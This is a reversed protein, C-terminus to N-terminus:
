LKVLLAFNIRDETKRLDPTLGDVTSGPPGAGEAFLSRWAVIM